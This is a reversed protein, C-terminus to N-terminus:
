QITNNWWKVQQENWVLWLTEKWEKFICRKNGALPRLERSEPKGVFTNECFASRGVNGLIAGERGLNCELHNGQKIKSLVQQEEFITNKKTIRQKEWWFTIEMFAFVIDITNKESVAPSPFSLSDTVTVGEGGQKGHWKSEHWGAGWRLLQPM